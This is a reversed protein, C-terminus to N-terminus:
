LKSGAPLINRLCITSRRSIGKPVRSSRQVQMDVLSFGVPWLIFLIGNLFKYAWRVEVFSDHKDRLGMWFIYRAPNAPLWTRGDECCVIQIEKINTQIMDFIRRKAMSYRQLFFLRSGDGVNKIGFDFRCSRLGWLCWGRRRRDFLRQRCWTSFWISFRSDFWIWSRISDFDVPICTWTTGCHHNFLHHWLCRRDEVGCCRWLLVNQIWFYKICPFHLAFVFHLSFRGTLHVFLEGGDRLRFKWSLNDLLNM